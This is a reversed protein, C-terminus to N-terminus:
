IRSGHLPARDVWIWRRESPQFQYKKTYARM